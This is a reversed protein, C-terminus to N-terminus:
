VGGSRGNLKLRSIAQRLMLLALNSDCCGAELDKLGQKKTQAPIALTALNQHLWTIVREKQEAPLQQYRNLTEANLRNQNDAHWQIPNIIRELTDQENPSHGQPNLRTKGGREAAKRATKEANM